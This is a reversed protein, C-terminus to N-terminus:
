PLCRAIFQRRAKKQGTALKIKERLVLIESYEREIGPHIRLTELQQATLELIAAIHTSRIHHMAILDAAPFVSRFSVALHAAADSSIFPWFQQWKLTVQTAATKHDGQM